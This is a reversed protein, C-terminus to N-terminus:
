LDRNQDRFRDMVEKDGRSEEGVYRNFDARKVVTEERPISEKEKDLEGWFREKKNLKCGVKPAYGSWWCKTDSKWNNVESEDGQKVRNEGKLCKECVEEETYRRSRIKRQWQVLM